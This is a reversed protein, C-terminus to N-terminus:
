QPRLTITQNPSAVCRNNQRRAYTLIRGKTCTNRDSISKKPNSVAQRISVVTV